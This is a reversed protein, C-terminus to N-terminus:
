ASPSFLVDVRVYRNKRLLGSLKEIWTRALKVTRITELAADATQAYGSGHAVADRLKGIVGLQRRAESKSMGLDLLKVIADRKDCFQSATLVDIGLNQENFERWANELKERRKGLCSLWSENDQCNDRIVQAMLLELHTVLFFLVPRVPLRHLDSITVIGDVQHGTLVLRCPSSDATEIFTLIGANSAILMSGDLRKFIEGVTDPLQPRKDGDLSRALEARNLLGVIHGDLKVPLYDFSQVGAGTIVPILKDHADCAVLAPEFTAILQVTLGTELAHFLQDKDFELAHRAWSTAPESLNETSTM